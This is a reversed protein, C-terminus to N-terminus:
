QGVRPAVPRALYLAYFRIRESKERRQVRAIIGQKAPTQSRYHSPMLRLWAETQPVSSHVRTPSCRFHEGPSSNMSVLGTGGLVAANQVIVSPAPHGYHPVAGGNLGMNRLGYHQQSQVQAHSPAGQRPIEERSPEM